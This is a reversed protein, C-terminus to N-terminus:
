YPRAGSDKMIQDAVGKIMSCSVLVPKTECTLTLFGTRVDWSYSFGVNMGAARINFRGSAANPISAGYQKGLNQLAQFVGPTVNRYKWPNCAAM